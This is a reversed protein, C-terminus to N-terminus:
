KKGKGTMYQVEIMYIKAKAEAKQIYKLGAEMYNQAFKEILLIFVEQKEEEEVEKVEGFSIVSKFKTSFGEPILEVDKVVCFSVKNSFTMNDTKHGTLASHFYIKDDRYIFNVPVGYPFGNEGVTSLIGYEATNMIELIEDKTLMKESRKMERFM